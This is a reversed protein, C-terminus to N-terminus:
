ESALWVMTLGLGLGAPVGFRELMSEPGVSVVDVPVASTKLLQDAIPQEFWRALGRAPSTAIVIQDVTQRSAYDAVSRVIPGRLWQASYPIGAAKVKREAVELAERAREARLRDTQARRVFRAIHRSLLPQVNVLQITADGLSRATR